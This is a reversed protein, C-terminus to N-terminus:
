VPVLVTDKIRTGEASIEIDISKVLYNQHNVRFKKWYPFSNLMWLPWNIFRTEERYHNVMLDIWEKYLQNYLGYESDWRLALNAEPIKELAPDYVDNTSLPYNFTEYHDSKWIRVPYLGRYFFLRFDDYNGEGIILFNGEKDIRPYIWHPSHMILQEILLPSFKTEISFKGEGEQMKLINESYFEWGSSKYFSIEFYRYYCNTLTVLRLDNNSNGTMPLYQDGYIPEKITHLDTPEKVRASWYKDESPNEFLLKFGEQKGVIQGTVEGSFETIDIVDTSKLINKLLIIKCGRSSEDIFVKSGTIKEVEHIFDGCNIEPLHNKSKEELLGNRIPRALYIYNETTVLPLDPDVIAVPTLASVVPKIDLSLNHSNDVTVKFINGVLQNQAAIPRVVGSSILLYAGDKFNHAANSYFLYRDNEITVKCYTFDWSYVLREDPKRYRFKGNSNSNFLYLQELDVNKVLDNAEINIKFNNFIGSVVSNFRMFPVPVTKIDSFTFGQYNTIDSLTNGEEDIGNIFGSYNPGIPFNDVFKSNSIPLYKADFPLDISRLSVDATNWFDNQSNFQFDLYKDTVSNFYIAGIFSYADTLIQAPYKVQNYGVEPLHLQAIVNKNRVTNVTKCNYSHSVQDTFMPNIMQHSIVGDFDIELSNILIKLM